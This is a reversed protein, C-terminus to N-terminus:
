KGHCAQNKFGTLIVVQAMRVETLKDILKEMSHTYGVERAQKWLIQSMLLGTLCFTHVKIKQDTWHYQPYVSNHYPNKLHKFAREVHSQGHYAAIVEEEPWDNRCTM